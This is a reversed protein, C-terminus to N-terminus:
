EPTPKPLVEDFMEEDMLAGQAVLQRYQVFDIVDKGTQKRSNFATFGLFAEGTM